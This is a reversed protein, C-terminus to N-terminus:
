DICWKMELFSLKQPNRWKRLIPCFDFLWFAKRIKFDKMLLCLKTVNVLITPAESVSYCDLTSQIILNTEFDNESLIYKDLYAQV